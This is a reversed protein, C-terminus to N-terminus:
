ILGMLALECTMNIEYKLKWCLTPASIKSEYELFNGKFSYM